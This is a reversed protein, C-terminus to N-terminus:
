KPNTRNSTRRWKSMGSGLNDVSMSPFTIVVRGRFGGAEAMRYADAADMFSFVGGPAIRPTLAGEDLLRAIRVIKEQDTVGNTVQVYTVNLRPDEIRYTARPSVIRGGDRVLDSIKQGILAGDIVGDIGDPYSSRIAQELGQARPLFQTVGRQSLFARDAESVNVLVNLGDLLALEVSLSGLMGAAGTVLLTQGAKLALLELSLMGTLANMPVTAAAVLDAGEQLAAVSAAPVTIQEAHAGGGSRRPNVVGIVSQGPQVSRVGAGVSLIRGSFEVGTTYPPTLDKMSAARLGSLNMLDTPNVTSAVVAVVVEDEDPLPDVKETIELVEPGGFEAFTVAKM